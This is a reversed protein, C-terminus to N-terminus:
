LKFVIPICVMTQCPKGHDNGPKWKPMMRMVRMAERDLYPHIPKVVQANAVTGDQNVIFSVVVKGQIKKQRAQEPYRLNKTLWKMFEVPGGPFEPMEEVVQFNLPNDANAADAPALATPTQEEIHAGDVGEGESESPKQMELPAPEENTSNAVINLKEPTAPPAEQRVVAIMDSPQIAPLLEMDEALDDLVADAAEENDGTTYELAVFLTALVVILGLLFGTSRHSELDASRSKKVEM